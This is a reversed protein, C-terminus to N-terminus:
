RNVGSGPRQGMDPKHPQNQVGKSKDDLQVPEGVEENNKREGDHAKAGQPKKDRDMTQRDMHQKDMHEKDTGKDTRQKDM